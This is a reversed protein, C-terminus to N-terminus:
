RARAGEFRPLVQTRYFEFFGRQDPGVQHIYVHTFGAEAFERIAEIHRQADPGCIVKEGVQEPTVDQAAQDFHDVSRLETNLPAPLAANPWWQFATQRAEEEDPGWCVTLQGYRPKNQGGAEAFAQILEKDPTTSVLADGAEGAFTAVKKGWAAIAIPPLNKPLTFIRCDEVTYFEGYHTTMEGKWLERILAVAEQLMELRVPLPPWRDGFIHENLNEGTGLGLFFRGEMMSAVTAAAQAVLAPHFRLIPCTVGTGVQLKDTAVAIGGLTSWVFPSHPQRKTWPHFHDSILSFTFGSDEAEKAYRVLDLPPHEESSLAYGLQIM